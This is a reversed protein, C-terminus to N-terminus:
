QRMESGWGANEPPCGPDDFRVSRDDDASPYNQLYAVKRQNNDTNDPGSGIPTKLDTAAALAKRNNLQTFKKKEEEAM